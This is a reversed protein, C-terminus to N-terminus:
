KPTLPLTHLSSPRTPLCAKRLESANVIDSDLIGFPKFLNIKM